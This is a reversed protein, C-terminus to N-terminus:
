GQARCFGHGDCVWAAPLGHLSVQQGQPVECEMGPELGCRSYELRPGAGYAAALYARLQPWLPTHAYADIEELTPRAAESYLTM